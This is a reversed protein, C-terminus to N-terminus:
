YSIKKPEMLSYMMGLACGWDYGFVIVKKKQSYKEILLDLIPKVV